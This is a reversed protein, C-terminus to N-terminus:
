HENITPSVQNETSNVITYIIYYLNIPEKKLFQLVWINNYPGSHVLTSPHHVSLNRKEIRTGDWSSKKEKGKRLGLRLKNKQLKIKEWGGGLKKEKIRKIKIIAKSVKGVWRSGGV